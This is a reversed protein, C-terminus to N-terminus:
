QSLVVHQRAHVDIVAHVTDVVNSSALAALKQANPGVAGNNGIEGDM